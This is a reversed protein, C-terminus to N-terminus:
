KRKGKLGTDSQAAASQLLEKENDTILGQKLMSQLAKAVCSVYKGHNNANSLCQNSAEAVMDALTLGSAFIQNSVTTELGNMSVYTSLDSADNVDANDGIGDGDTDSWETPDSPFADEDDSVGDGDSDVITVLEDPTSQSCGMQGNASAYCIDGSTTVSVAVAGVNAFETWNQHPVGNNRGWCKVDGAETAACGKDFQADADIADGAFYGATQGVDNYNSNMCDVNGHELLLCLAYHGGGQATATGDTVWTPETVNWGKCSLASSTETAWCAAYSSLAVWKAEGESHTTQWNDYGGTIYYGTCNVDNSQTKVCAAGYGVSVEVADGGTYSIENAMWGWCTSNGDSLLACNTYDGSAFDIINPASFDAAQGYVGEETQDYPNPSMWCNITESGEIWACQHRSGGDLKVATTDAKIGVTVGSVLLLATVFLANKIM